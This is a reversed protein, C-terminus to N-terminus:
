SEEEDILTMRERSSIPMHPVGFALLEFPQSVRPNTKIGHAHKAPVYVTDGEVLEHDVGDIRIYGQSRLVYLIHAGPHTHLEFASGPEMKLRDVGVEWGNEIVEAAGALGMIGLLISGDSSILKADPEAAINCVHKDLNFVTSTEM